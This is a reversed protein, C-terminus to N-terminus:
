SVEGKFEGGQDSQLITPYVDGSGTPFPAAIIQNLKDRVLPATKDSLSRAWVYGSFFDVVTLVYKNGMEILDM